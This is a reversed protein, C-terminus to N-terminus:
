RKMVKKVYPKHKKDYIKILLMGNHCHNLDIKQLPYINNVDFLKKGTIDFVEIGTIEMDTDIFLIEDVPNPYLNFHINPPYDTSNPKLGKCSCDEQVKDDQTSDNQDDCPAGIQPEGSCIKAIDGLYPLLTNGTFDYGDWGNQTSPHPNFGLDCHNNIIKDPICGSFNNNQLYLRTLGTMDGIQAPITGTLNNDHISLDTLNQLQSIEEPLAGEFDNDNLYLDSLNNLNKLSKPIEGSLKNNNLYLYELQTLNGIEDPINGSFQNHSLVLAKLAILDGTEEPILGGLNNNCLYLYQLNSLYGIEAPLQGTLNNDCLYLYDVCGSTDTNVGYWENLPIYGGWNNNRLWNDGNTANYIAMLVTSDRSRCPNNLIITGHCGCDSQIIDNSTNPNGDDCAAGVQQVGSCVVQMDGAFPLLPNGILNYGQLYSNPNYELYCYADLISQPICGSLDNHDLYFGELNNLNSLEDPIQGSLSNHHLYIYELGELSGIEVPISGTLNNHSLNLTRLRSIDGIEQPIIGNLSNGSASNVDCDANGDLDICIVCGDADVEIGYWESLLNESGWNDNRTWNAGGTAYYLAMLATSDSQRCLEVPIIDGQCSCDGQIIDNETNPNGDDCAAGVQQAGSCVIQMDGEFPLLPNSTLNYGQLYSNPNYGLDCYADLISQPICGSLDNRDLYFGELNNLNSLEDPIQGSLNNEFLYLYELNQMNGFEPPLQGEIQNRYLHLETLNILSGLSAPLQGTFNNSDMFLFILNSLNGLEDPIQGTLENSDLFLHELNSLDAIEVPIQGSLNNYSLYLYKISSLNGIEIPINGSLQNSYLDLEILNSLNGIEAPIQGSIQNTSLYLNVLNSLNGLEVPLQGTLQNNSLDLWVLNSLNGISVPLQGSLQNDDGFFHVLNSLNGINVPIQGTLQNHGLYLYRLESLYTIEAPISGSLQNGYLDLEILNTLNGIEAPINGSIQNDNLYMQTINLLDGIEEPLEGNLNNNNLNLIDVCGDLGTEVGHWAWLPENTGWNTNYNWNDGDLANYIQMLAFSDRQLDCIQSYAFTWTLLLILAIYNKIKM